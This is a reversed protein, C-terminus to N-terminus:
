CPTLGTDPNEDIEMVKPDVAALTPGAESAPKPPESSDLALGQYTVSPEYLDGTFVSAPVPARGSALKVLEDAAENFRRTIHNLKFGNFKDEWLRVVL